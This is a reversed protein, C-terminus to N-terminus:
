LLVNVKFINGISISNIKMILPIMWVLISVIELIEIKGVYMAGRSLFRRNNYSKMIGSFVLANVMTPMILLRHFNLSLNYLPLFLFCIVNIYYAFETFNVFELAFSDIYRFVFKRLYSSVYLGVFYVLYLAMFGLNTRTSFYAEIKFGQTPFLKILLSIITSSFPLRNGLSVVVFCYLIIVAAIIQIALKGKGHAAGRRVRSSSVLLFLLNTIMVTHLSSAAMVLLIFKIKRNKTALETIAYLSISFALAFRIATAFLLFPFVMMISILPHINNTIQRVSLIFFLLSIIFIVMLCLGYNNIGVIRLFDALWKFGQETINVGANPNTLFLRYLYADGNEGNNGCFVLGFFIITIFVIFKSKKKTLAFIINILWILYYLCEGM